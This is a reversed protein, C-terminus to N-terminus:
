FAGKAVNVRVRDVANWLYGEPNWQMEMPQRRGRSDTARSLIVYMGERPPKWQFDWLRWAYRAHEAGL